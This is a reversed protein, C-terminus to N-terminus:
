LTQPWGELWALIGKFGGGGGFVKGEGGSWLYHGTGSLVRPLVM